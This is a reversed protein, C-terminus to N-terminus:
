VIRGERDVQVFQGTEHCWATLRGAPSLACGTDLIALRPGIVPHYADEGAAYNMTPTHGFYGVRRWAKEGIIEPMTYRGWLLRYRAGDSTLRAAVGPEDDDAWVDWKAHAVFLDPEEVVPPLDRVFRRHSAPVLAALEGLTAATPRRLARQLDGPTAGYSRFTADLGHQMFWRFAAERAGPGREGTYSDGDNAVHDFVDDHNGRVFSAAPGLSLLLDIVGRADPGRNVYDGAFLLRPSADAARVAALLRELPRLMGHIDGIIWRM